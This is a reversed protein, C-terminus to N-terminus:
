TGGDRAALVTARADPPTVPAADVDLGSALPPLPGLSTVRRIRHQDLRWGDRWLTGPLHAIAGMTARVLEGRSRHRNDRDWIWEILHIVLHTVYIPYLLRFRWPFYHAIMAHYFHVRGALERLYWDDRERRACGGGIDFRRHVTPIPDYVLHEGPRRQRAFRYAFSQEEGYPQLGEDWGGVRECLERRCSSNTGHLYDVGTKRLPGYAYERTTRLWTHSIARSRVLRPFRVTRVRTPAGTLKGVVGVVQPDRYNRLHDAIWRDGVPLDDDDIFLLIQGRAHRIAENRAGAAGLPPRSIQRIRRDGLAQVAADLARDDSQDLLLIEFDRHTQSLLRRLLELLAVPRRYSRVIISCCTVDRDRGHNERSASFSSAGDTHQQRSTTKV